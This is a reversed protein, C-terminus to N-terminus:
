RPAREPKLVMTLVRGDLPETPALQLAAALTPAIDVSRVPMDYRGPVIMPGLFLMPIHADYDHPTGHTAYRTTYNYFYPKLTLTLVANLDPPISQLWRRAIKDGGKAAAALGSVRDVRMVGPIRLLETRISEAVSDTKVGRAALRRRDISIIGSQLLLADGEVGRKALGSRASDIVPRPDVRGRNPDTGPFHLEPFTAVGHDASLAFVIRTSDRM